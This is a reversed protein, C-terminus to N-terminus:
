DDGEVEVEADDDDPAMDCAALTSGLTLTLLLIATFRKLM